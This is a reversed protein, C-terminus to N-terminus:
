LYPSFLESDRSTRISLGCNRDSDPKPSVTIRHDSDDGGTQKPYGTPRPKQTNKGLNPLSFTRNVKEQIRQRHELSLRIIELSYLVDEISADAPFFLAARTSPIIKMHRGFAERIEKPIYLVGSETIKTKLEVM